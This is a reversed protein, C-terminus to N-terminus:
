SQDLSIPTAGESQAADFPKLSNRILSRLSVIAWVGEMLLFGWNQSTAADFALYSSGALNLILYPAAAASMRRLQVLVFPTVVCVSAAIQLIQGSM